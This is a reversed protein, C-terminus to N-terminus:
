EEEEEAGEDNITTEEDEDEKGEEEQETKGSEGEMYHEMAEEESVENFTWGLMDYETKAAEEAGM